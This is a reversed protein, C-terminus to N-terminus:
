PRWLNGRLFNLFPYSGVSGDVRVANMSTSQMHRYMISNSGTGATLHDEGLPVSEEWYAETKGKRDRKLYPGNKPEIRRWCGFAGKGGWSAEVLMAVKSPHPIASVSMAPEDTFSTLTLNNAAYNRHFPYTGNPDYEANPASPCQYLEACWESGKKKGVVYGGTVMSVSWDPLTTKNGNADKREGASHPLRGQCDDAYQHLAIGLQRLNGVCHLAQARELAKQLSPALLAALIAIIAVVVLIEILTFQTRKIMANM